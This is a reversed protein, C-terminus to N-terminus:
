AGKFSCAKQSVPALVLLIFRFSNADFHETSRVDFKSNQNNKWQVLDGPERITQECRELAFMASTATHSLRAVVVSISLYRGM